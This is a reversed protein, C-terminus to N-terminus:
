VVSKRDPSMVFDTVTGDNEANGFYVYPVNASGTAALDTGPTVQINSAVPEGITSLGQIFLAGPNVNLQAATSTNPVGGSIKGVYIFGSKMQSFNSNPFDYVAVGDVYHNGYADVGGNFSVSAILNGAAPTGSYYLDTGSVGQGDRIVVHNFEATGDKNISWGSSGAVYNDSHVGPIILNGQSDFALPNQTPEM